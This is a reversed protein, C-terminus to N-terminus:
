RIIKKKAVRRDHTRILTAVVDQLMTSLSTREISRRRCTVVIPKPPKEGKM